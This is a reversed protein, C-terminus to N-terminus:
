ITNPPPTEVKHLLLSTNLATFHHTSKYKLEANIMEKNFVVIEKLKQKKTEENDKEEDIDVLNICNNDVIIDKVPIIYTITIILLLISLFIKM